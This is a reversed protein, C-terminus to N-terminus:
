AYLFKIKALMCLFDIPFIFFALRLAFLDNMNLHLIFGGVMM